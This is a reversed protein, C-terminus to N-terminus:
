NDIGQFSYYTEYLSKYTKNNAILEQHTGDGVIKGNEFVLIRDVMLITSLRHAVIISTRNEFLKELSKQILSETYADVSATAEDLILIKPDALLARAMTLLQRQGRSLRSGKERVDTELGEPLSNIFENLNTKSIIDKIEKDKANINGFKINELISGSFLYPEQPVLGIHKRYSDIDLDQVNFGDIFIYGDNLEYFRSLLSVFTSKGAGTHGVLAIKTNPEIELNMNEFIMEKDNYSFTVNQYTIHGKLEKIIKNGTKMKSNIDLLSFIRETAASGAQIRAVQQALQIVPGFLRLTYAYFLYLDGIGIKGNIVEGGGTELITFLLLISLFDILPFFISFTYSLKLNAKLNKDNLHIFDKKNQEERNFGKIVSVGTVTEQIASNVAARTKRVVRAFRRLFIAIILVLVITIPIGLLIWLTLTVNVSFMISLITVMLILSSMFLSFVTVLAGAQNSDDMVRNMIKGTQMKDYFGLDMKQLKEFMKIRLDSISKATIIVELRILFYVILWQVFAGILYIYGVFKAFEFSLNESFLAISNLGERVLFPLLIYVLAEFLTVVVLGILNLKQTSALDFIRSITEKFTYEKDFYAREIRNRMSM